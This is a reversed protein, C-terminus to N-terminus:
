RSRKGTPQSEALQCFSCLDGARCRDARRMRWRFLLRYVPGWKALWRLPTYALMALGYLFFVGTLVALGSLVLVVILVAFLITYIISATKRM